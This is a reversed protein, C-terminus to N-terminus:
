IVNGDMLMSSVERTRDAAIQKLVERFEPYESRIRMYKAHHLVIFDCFELSRVSANRREGLATEGARTGRCTRPETM